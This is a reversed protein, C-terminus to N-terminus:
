KVALVIRESEKEVSRLAKVTMSREGLFDVMSKFHKPRIEGGNEWKQVASGSVGIKEGFQKQTFGLRRRDHNIQKSLNM